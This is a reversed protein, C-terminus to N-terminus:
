PKTHWLSWASPLEHAATYQTSDSCSWWRHPISCPETPRQAAGGGGALVTYLVVMWIIVNQPIYDRTVDLM